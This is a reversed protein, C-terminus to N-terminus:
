SVVVGNKALWMEVRNTFETFEEVTLFRSRKVTSIVEGTPLLRTSTNCQSLLDEHAQLKDEEGVWEQYLPVLLAWYRDNQQKSRRIREAEATVSVRRGEYRSLFGIWRGREDPIFQGGKSVGALTISRGGM